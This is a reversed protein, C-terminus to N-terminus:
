ALAAAVAPLDDRYTIGICPADCRLVRVVAGSRLAGEVVDPLRLEGRGKNRTHEDVARGLADFISPRFGWMNMSVWADGRLPEDGDDRDIDRARLGDPSPTVTAERIGLLRGDDSIDILGRSVPRTGVLTQAVPFVVLAHEAPAGGLHDVLRAFAVPPYLDDANVVAFARRVLGRATFVAHATGSPQTGGGVPRQVVLEVPIPRPRAGLHARMEELNEASVVVVARGFGAAAARAAIVDVITEGNPRVPALQKWGGFRTGRGAALVVLDLPAGDDLRPATM